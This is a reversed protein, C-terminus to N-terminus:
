GESSNDSDPKIPTPAAAAKTDAHRAARFLLYAIVIVGVVALAITIKGSTSSIFSVDEAHVEDGHAFHTLFM